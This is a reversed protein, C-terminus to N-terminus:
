ILVLAKRFFYISQSQFGHDSSQLTILWQAVMMVTAVCHGTDSFTKVIRSREKERRWHKLRDLCCESYSSPDSYTQDQIQCWVFFINNKGSSFKGFRDFLLGAKCENKGRTFTKKARDQLFRCVKPWTKLFPWDLGRKAKNKYKLCNVTFINMIFNQRHSSEFQPDRTDSTVM